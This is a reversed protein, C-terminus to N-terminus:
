QIACREMKLCKSPWASRTNCNCRHTDVSRIHVYVVLGAETFHKAVLIVDCPFRRCSTWPVFERCSQKQGFRVSFYVCSTVLVEDIDECEIGNGRYGAPCPGCEVTHITVSGNKVETDM